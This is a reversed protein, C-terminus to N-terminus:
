NFFFAVNTLKLPASDCSGMSFGLASGLGSVLCTKPAERFDMWASFGVSFVASILAPLV